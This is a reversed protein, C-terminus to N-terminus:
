MYHVSSYDCQGDLCPAYVLLVRKSCKPKVSLLTNKKLESHSM